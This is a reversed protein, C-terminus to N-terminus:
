FALFGIYRTWNKVFGINGKFKKLNLKALLSYMEGYKRDVHKWMEPKEGKSIKPHM